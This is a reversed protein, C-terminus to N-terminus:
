RTAKMGWLQDVADEGRKRLAEKMIIFTNPPLRKRSKWNSVATVNRGTLRSVAGTGGLAEVVASATLLTITAPKIGLAAPVDEPDIECEFWRRAQEYDLPKLGRRVMVADMAEWWLRFRTMTSPHHAIAMPFLM